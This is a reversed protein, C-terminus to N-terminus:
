PTLIGDRDDAAPLDLPGGVAIVDEVAGRIQQLLVDHRAPRAPLPCAVDGTRVRFTLTYRATIRSREELRTMPQGVAVPHRLIQCAAGHAQRDSQAPRLRAANVVRLAPRLITRVIASLAQALMSELRRDAAFAIAAISGARALVARGFAHDAVSLGKAIPRFDRTTKSGLVAHFSRRVSVFGCSTWDAHGRGTGFTGSDVEGQFICLAWGAIHEDPIFSEAKSRTFRILLM